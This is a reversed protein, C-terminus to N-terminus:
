IEGSPVEGSRCAAAVAAVKGQPSDAFCLGRPVTRGEQHGQQLTLAARSGGEGPAAAAKRHRDAHM